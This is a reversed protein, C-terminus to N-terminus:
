MTRSAVYHRLVHPTVTKEALSPCAQAAVSAYKTVFRQVADTSLRGGRSNPFLPDESAPRQEDLWATVAREVDRRLPTCRNKRGKGVCRVHAGAGLMVSTTLLSTLESVRLGTQVLVRLITRDRRGIWVSTDPAAVLAEIEERCLFEITKKQHRKPPISIARYAQRRFDPYSWRDDLTRGRTTVLLDVAGDEEIGPPPGVTKRLLVVLAANIILGGALSILCILTFTWSRRLSRVAHRIDHGVGALLGGRGYRRERRRERWGSRM